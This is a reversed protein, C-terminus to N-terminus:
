PPSVFNCYQYRVFVDMYSLLFNVKQKGNVTGGDKSANIDGPLKSLFKVMEEQCEKDLPVVYDDFITNEDLPLYKEIGPNRQIIGVRVYDNTLCTLPERRSVTAKVEAMIVKRADANNIGPGLGVM